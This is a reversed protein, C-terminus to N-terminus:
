PPADGRVGGLHSRAHPLLLLGGLAASLQARASAQLVVHVGNVTFSAASHGQQQVGEPGQDSRHIPPASHPHVVVAVGSDNVAEMDCTHDRQQDAAQEAELSTVPVTVSRTQQRKLKWFISCVTMLQQWTVPM